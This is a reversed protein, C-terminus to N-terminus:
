VCRSTYLLCVNTGGQKRMKENYTVGVADTGTYNNVRTWVSYDSEKVGAALNNTYEWMTLDRFEQDSMTGKKKMCTDCYCHEQRKYVDLHTYSVAM